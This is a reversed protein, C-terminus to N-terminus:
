KIVRKGHRVVCAAWDRCVVQQTWEGDGTRVRAKRAEERCVTAGCVFCQRTDIGDGADLLARCPACISESM